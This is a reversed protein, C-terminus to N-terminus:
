LVFDADEGDGRAFVRMSEVITDIKRLSCSV